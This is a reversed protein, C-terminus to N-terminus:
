AKQEQAGARAVVSEFVAALLAILLFLRWLETGVGARLDEISARQYDDIIRIQSQKHVFTELREALTNVPIINMLSESAPVNVALTQVIDNRNDSKRPYNVAYVGPQSLNEMQLVLGSPMQLPMRLSIEGSPDIVELSAGQAIKGSIRLSVPQNVLAFSAVSPRATLYSASRAVVSVFIGTVPFNSWTTLPPVACYLVKGNGLKSEALFIGNSIEMLPQALLNTRSLPLAQTIRPSEISLKEGSSKESAFVGTFLPHLKDVSSFEANGGGNGDADYSASFIAGIQLANFVSSNYHEIDIRDGAFIFLGGGDTIFTQLRAIDSASFRPINVLMIADFERLSISSLAEPPIVNLSSFNNASQLALELFKTEAPSGLLAIRPKPALAFGFFRKNDVELVDSEIEVVGRMLQPYQAASNTPITATIPLSRVEGAPINVTRQAVREGNIGLSVIVDRAEASGNNRIHAEIEIPKEAEFIQTIVRLSDVSLNREASKSASGIPVLYLGDNPSFVKLSDQPFKLEANLINAQNDSIIFVERNINRAKALCSSALRLSSELSGNTYAIANSQIADEITKFDRSFEFFRRDEVNAMFILAVEDGEGLSRLIRTAAEKAQKFRSGREDALEMSFSNDLIIVVSSKAKAGLGPFSTPLTPRAFALVACIIVVLRLLLLLWQTLKLRRIRTKQLEKLFALTSFDVVHLKRVNFFHLLIPISAAFLGFLIAPNLFTM